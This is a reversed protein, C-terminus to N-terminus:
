LKRWEIQDISETWGDAAELDVNPIWRLRCKAEDGSSVFQTGLTFSRVVDTLSSAAAGVVEFGSSTYNLAEVFETLDNRTASTEIKLSIAGGALGAAGGVFEALANPTSEDNLLILRSDDSTALSALNGGFQLGEIISYSSPHAIITFIWLVAENRNEANNRAFGAVYIASGEARVSYAASQLWSESGGPLFQHLDVWSAASGNWLSARRQGGVSASGVQISGSVGYADSGTAGQPHLSVWSASTGNWLSAMYVGGVWAWGVQQAGSTGEARSQSAGSPHIDIWSSATGSWLCARYVGGIQAWGVQQEGFLGYSISQTAGIPHLDVWSSATGSWLSARATGGASVWGSQHTGSTGAANSFDAGIPNLDVWSSASGHWLGAHWQGNVHARGVQQGSSIGYAESQTAMQPHLDIWSGASGSWLIARDQGGVVIKGVQQSSTTAYAFSENGAPHLIAVTWEANTTTGTTMAVALAALRVIWSWKRVRTSHSGTAKGKPKTTRRAAKLRRRAYSHSVCLDINMTFQWGESILM